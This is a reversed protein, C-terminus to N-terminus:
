KIYDVLVISGPPPAVTFTITSIGDFSYDDGMKQYAGNLFVDLLNNLVPSATTFVKNSGDIVGSPVEGYVIHTNLTTAGYDVQNLFM